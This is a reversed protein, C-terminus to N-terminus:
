CRLLARIPGPEVTVQRGDTAKALRQLQFGSTSLPLPAKPLVQLRAQPATYSGGTPDGMAAWHNKM